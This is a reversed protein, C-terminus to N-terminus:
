GVKQESISIVCSDELLVRPVESGSDDDDDCWMYVYMCVYMCLDVDVIDSGGPIRDEVEVVVM